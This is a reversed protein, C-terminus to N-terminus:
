VMDVILVPPFPSRFMLAHILPKNQHSFRLIILLDAAVSDFIMKIQILMKKHQCRKLVADVSISQAGTNWWGIFLVLFVFRFVEKWSSHKHCCCVYFQAGLLRSCALLVSLPLSIVIDNYWRWEQRASLSFWVNASPPLSFSLSVNLVNMIFYVNPMFRHSWDMMVPLKTVQRLLLCTQLFRSCLGSRTWEAFVLSFQSQKLFVNKAEYDLGTHSM